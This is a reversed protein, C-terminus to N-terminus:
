PTSNSAVVPETLLRFSRSAIMKIPANGRWRFAIMSAHILTTQAAGAPSHVQRRPHSRWLPCFNNGNEAAIASVRQPRHAVRVLTFIVQVPAVVRRAATSGLCPRGRMSACRASRPPSATARRPQAFRMAIAPPAEADARALPLTAAAATSAWTSSSQMMCRSTQKGSMYQGADVSNSNSRHSLVQRSVDHQM